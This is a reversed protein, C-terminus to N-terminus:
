SKWLAGRVFQKLTKKDIWTNSTNSGSSSSRGSATSSIYDAKASSKTTNTKSQSFKQKWLEIIEEVIEPTVKKFNDLLNQVYDKFDEQNDEAISKVAIDIQREQEKKAIIQNAKEEALKEVQAQTYGTSREINYREEFDALTECGYIKLVKKLVDPNTEYEYVNNPDEYVNEIADAIVAKVWQEKIQTQLKKTQEILKQTGRSSNKQLEKYKAEWDTDQDNEDDEETEQTKNNLDEEETTEELDELNEDPQVSNLEELLKWM